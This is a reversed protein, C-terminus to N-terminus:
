GRRHRSRASTDSTAVAIRDFAGVRDHQRRFGGGPLIRDLRDGGGFRMASSTAFAIREIAADDVRLAGLGLRGAGVGDGVRRALDGIREIEGAIMQQVEDPEVPAAHRARFAGAASPPSTAWSDCGPPLGDSFQPTWQM